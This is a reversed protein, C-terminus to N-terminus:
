EQTAETNDPAADPAPAEEESVVPESEEQVEVAAANKAAIAKERSERLKSEAAHRAQEAQVKGSLVNTKKSDIKNEKNALWEAHIQDAKEQTLAGKRVGEALHMRHLVGKYSMIARSTDTLRAGKTMWQFAKETDLVITAPNSNPNYTGIKEIFKGDRPARSDAVVIHFFAKGKKGHRSLRIKTPM